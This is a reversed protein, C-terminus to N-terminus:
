KQFYKSKLAFRVLLFNIPVCIILAPILAIQPNLYQCFIDVLVIQLILNIIHSSAFSIFKKKNPQSHFTFYNSLLFNVNFSIVYSIFTSFVPKLDAISILFYYVGYQILVALSGTIFFRIAESKRSESKVFYKINLSCFHLFKKIM